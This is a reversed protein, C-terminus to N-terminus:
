GKILTEHDKKLSINTYGLRNLEGVVSEIWCETLFHEAKGPDPANNKFLNLSVDKIKQLDLDSM